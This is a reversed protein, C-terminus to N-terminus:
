DSQSRQTQHMGMKWMALVFVQELRLRTISDEPRLRGFYLRRCAESACFFSPWDALHQNREAIQASSPRHMEILKAESLDLDPCRDDEEGEDDIQTPGVADAVSSGAVFILPTPAFRLCPSGSERAIDKVDSRATKSLGTQLFALNNSIPEVLVHASWVSCGSSSASKLSWGTNRWWMCLLGGM